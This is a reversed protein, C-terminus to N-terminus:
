ASWKWPIGWASLEPSIDDIDVVKIINDFSPSMGWKLFLDEALPWHHNQIVVERQKSDIIKIKREKM